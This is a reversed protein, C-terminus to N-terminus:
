PMYRCNPFFSTLCSYRRWMDECYPSSRGMLPQSRNVLKPCGLLNWRTKRSSKTVSGVDSLPRWGFKARQKATKQAPVSYICKQPEQGRLSNQWQVTCFESQMWTKREWINAANSCSVRTTPTLWVNCRTVLFPILSSKYLAGGINPLAAMVIPM